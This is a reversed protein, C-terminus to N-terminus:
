TDNAMQILVQLSTIFQNIVHILTPVYISYPFARTHPTLRSLFYTNLLNESAKYM